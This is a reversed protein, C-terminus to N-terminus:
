RDKVDGFKWGGGTDPPKPGPGESTTSPGKRSPIKALSMNLTVEESAKLDVQEESDYYGNLRLRIKHSGPSLSLKLPTTKGTPKGDVFVTAGTPRSTTSLMAEKPLPALDATLSHDRDQIEIQRKWEKHDPMRLSVLYTGNYVETTMPTKGKLIDNIFVQAGPPNSSLELSFERAAPKLTVDLEKPDQLTLREEYAQYNALSLRIAHEGVPLAHETPTKGVSADDVFVEAGSPTSKVKLSALRVSQQLDVRLPYETAEKVAIRDEWPQFNQLSLRISHEGLPVMVSAPTKAKSEGDVAVDAGSPVSDLKLVALNPAAKLNVQIPYEKVVDLQITDDHPEYGPLWLRIAHKGLPLEAGIPTNGIAAGDVAVEAGPPTSGVKLKALQATPKLQVQLPYEKVEDAQVEGEWDAHGPLTIRVTHKGLSLESKLPSKGKAAGDLNIDAGIPTTEVVLSALQESPKLEIRLPVQKAETLQLQDQWPQHNPLTARVAHKGLSLPVMLPATGKRVGDVTIEAGKPDSEIRLVAAKGLLQLFESRYFYGAVGGAVMILAFILGLLALPKKSREGKQAAPSPEAPLQEGTPAKKGLCNRLAEALEKGTQFREEPTKKLCKIIVQSLAPDIGPNAVAPDTPENNVIESLVTAINKNAIGFPREGTAMEYLIIGLSFLDSRGDVAKGLVQEPSMYAPTGLVEGAMTQLTASVDEIHAIGFDTIKIIGGPQVIMNSPKIDRHVVGKHHAYDLAEAVQIGIDLVEQLDFRRESILHDLPKGEVYEMAIYINGRDEGADFATVINTHLLRGIARAEKFFRKVYAESATRDQRMVKLAVPRDFQPDYAQYVLGMSGKGLEKIIQYRGYNM